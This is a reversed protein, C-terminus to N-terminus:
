LMKSHSYLSHGCIGLWSERIYVRVCDCKDFNLCLYQHLIIWQVLSGKHIELKEALVRKMQHCWRSHQIINPQTEKITITESNKKKKIVYISM